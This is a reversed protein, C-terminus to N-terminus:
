PAPSPPTPDVLILAQTFKFTTGSNMNMQSTPRIYIGTADIYIPMSLAAGTGGQQYWVTGITPDGQYWALEPFQAPTVLFVTSGQSWTHNGSLAGVGWYNFTPGISIVSTGLGYMVDTTPVAPTVRMFTRVDSIAIARDIIELSWEITSLRRNIEACDCCQDCAKEELVDLRRNIEDCDCAAAVRGGLRAINTIKAM